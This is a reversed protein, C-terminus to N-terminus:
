HRFWDIFDGVAAGTLQKGLINVSLLCSSVVNLLLLNYKQADDRGERCTRAGARLRLAVGMRPSAEGQHSGRASSTASLQGTSASPGALQWSALPALVGPCPRRSPHSLPNSNSEEEKCVVSLPSAHNGIEFM